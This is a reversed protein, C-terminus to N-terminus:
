EEGKSDEEFDEFAIEGFEILEKLAESHDTATRVPDVFRMLSSCLRYRNLPLAILFGLNSLRRLSIPVRKRIEKAAEAEIFKKRRPFMGMFIKETDLLGNMTKLVIGADIEGGTAINSPDLRMLALIQGVLMEAADLQKKGFQEGRPLLYFFGEEKRILEAGFREYFPELIEIADLLYSYLEEEDNSIHVGRRLQVDAKPFLEHAIVEELNAFESTM